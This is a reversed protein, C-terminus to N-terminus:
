EEMQDLDSLSVIKGEKTLSVILNGVPDEKIVRAGNVGKVFIQIAFNEALKLYKLEEDSTIKIKLSLYGPKIGKYLPYLKFYLVFFLIIILFITIFLLKKM